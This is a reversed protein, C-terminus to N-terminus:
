VRRGSQFVLIPVQHFDDCRVYSPCELISLGENRQTIFLLHQLFFAIYMLLMQNLVFLLINYLFCTQENNSTDSWIDVTDDIFDM